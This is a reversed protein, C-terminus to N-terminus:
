APQRSKRLSRVWQMFCNAASRVFHDFPAGTIGNVTFNYKLLPQRTDQLKWHISVGNDTIELLSVVPPEPIEQGLKKILDQNSQSQVQCFRQFLRHYLM